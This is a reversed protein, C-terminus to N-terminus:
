SISSTSSAAWVPYRGFAGILGAPCGGLAAPYPRPVYCHWVAPPRTFVPGFDAFIGNCPRWPEDFWRGWKEDGPHEGCVGTSRDDVVAPHHTRHIFFVDPTCLLHDAPSLRGSGALRDKGGAQRLAGHDGLLGFISMATKLSTILIFSSTNVSAFVDPPNIPLIATFITGAVVASLVQQASSTRATVENEETSVVKYKAPPSSRRRNM